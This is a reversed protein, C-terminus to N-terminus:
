EPGWAEVQLLRAQGDVAAVRHAVIRIRSTRVPRALQHVRTAMLRGTDENVVTNWQQRAEDWAQIEYNMVGWRGVSGGPVSSHYTTVVFRSINHAGAFDIEV